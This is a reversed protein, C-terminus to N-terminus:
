DPTPQLTLRSYSTSILSNKLSKGHQEWVPGGHSSGKEGELLCQCVLLEMAMTDLSLWRQQLPYAPTAPSGSNPFPSIFGLYLPSYLQMSLLKAFLARM